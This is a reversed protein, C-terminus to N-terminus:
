DETITAARLSQLNAGNLTSIITDNGRWSSQIIQEIRAFDELSFDLKDYQIFGLSHQIHAKFWLKM